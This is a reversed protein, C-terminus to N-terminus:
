LFCLIANLGNMQLQSLQLINERYKSHESDSMVRNECQGASDIKTSFFLVLFLRPRLGDAIYSFKSVQRAAMFVRVRKPTKSRV